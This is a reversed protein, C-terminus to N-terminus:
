PGDICATARLTSYTQWSADDWPLVMNASDNGGYMFLCVIAKYDSATQAVAAGMTAMNLAFPLGASGVSGSLITARRLFERRSAQNSSM